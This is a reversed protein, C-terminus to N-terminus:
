QKIVKRTTVLGEDTFLKLHYIGGPLAATNLHDSYDKLWVLQGNPQYLAMKTFVLTSGNRIHLTERFPNPSLELEPVEVAVEQQSYVFDCEDAYDALYEIEANQYCIFDGFCGKPVYCCCHFGAFHMSTSGVNEVLKEMDNCVDATINLIDPTIDQVTFSKLVQGNNVPILEVDEVVLVYIPPISDDLIQDWAWSTFLGRDTIGYYTVTDGVEASFDYLLYFSTDELFYVKNAEEWVVLSDGTNVWESTSNNYYYAYIVSCDKGQVDMEQEVRFWNHNSLCDFSHGEYRWEANLPAYKKQATALLPLLAILLLATKRM